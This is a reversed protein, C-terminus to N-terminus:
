GGLFVFFCIRHVDVGVVKFWGGAKVLWTTIDNVLSTYGDDLLAQTLSVVQEAHGARVAMVLADGAM